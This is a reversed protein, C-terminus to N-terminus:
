FPTLGERDMRLEIGGGADVLEVIAGPQNNTAAHHLATRGQSDRANVAAGHGLLAKVVGINGVVAARDLASAGISSRLAVDAGASLLCIVVALHGGGAALVLASNGDNDLAGTDAGMVLLASVVKDHGAVSAVHLPSFGDTPSRTGLDAGAVLLIRVVPLHGKDAAWVLATEGANNVADTKAGKLLLASVIACHGGIAAFHLASRGYDTSRVHIDADASLLVKAAALRGRTAAWLLPTQGFKDTYNKRAGGNLLGSVILEHGDGASVHLPARGDRTSQINASAGVAVLTEVVALHGERTAWFLPTEWNSDVADKNAGGRILASVIESYGNGAAVHLPAYGTDNMTGINCDAGATLLAEVTSLQGELVACMLPTEGSNDVDDKEAGILLLCSLIQENGKGAAIHLPAGGNNAACCINPDAGAVLLIRVGPLFSERIASVLPTEGSKDAVNLRAGRLVLASVMAANKGIVAAHLPARCSKSCHLNPDAGALVLDKMVGLNGEGSGM